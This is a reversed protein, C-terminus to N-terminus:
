HIPAPPSIVPASSRRATRRRVLNFDGTITITGSLDANLGTSVGGVFNNAIITNSMLLSVGGFGVSIGGGAGSSSNDVITSSVISATTGYFYLAGGGGGTATNKTMTSNSLILEGGDYFYIGAGEAAVNGTLLSNYIEIKGGVDGIVTSIAGGLGLGSATNSSIETDTVKVSSSGDALAIAGGSATATSGTITAESVNLTSGTGVLIAGGAGSVSGSKLVVFSLDLTQSDAVNFIRGTKNADITVRNKDTSIGNIVVSESVSLQGGLTITAPNFTASKFTITDTFGVNSNAFNLAKRLTLFTDAYNGDDTDGINSVTLSVEGLAANFTTLPVTSIPVTNATPTDADKVTPGVYWVQYIDTDGTDWTDATIGDPADFTYTITVPTAFGTPAPPNMSKANFTLGGFVSKVVIDNIDITGLDINVDDTFTVTVDFTTGGTVTVNDAKAKVTPIPNSQINYAGIDVAGLFDRNFPVGRQDHNLSLVTNSGGGLVAPHSTGLVARTNTFGGNNQLPGLLPDSGILNFGGGAVTIGSGLDPSSSSTNGGIISSFVTLTITSTGPSIGGGGAAGAKNGTLTSNNITWIGSSGFAYIGGGWTTATNGTFTSNNITMTASNVFYLGGGENASNGSVLSSDLKVLSTGSAQIGGGLSSGSTATNNSFASYEAYLRGSGIIVGGGSTVATNGTVSSKNITVTTGSGWSLGGGSSSASNSTFSSSTITVSGTGITAAGGSGSGASNSSFTGALSATVGGGNMALAGGAGATAKNTSFTGSLSVSANAGSVLMAGGAGATATNGTFSMSTMSITPSAGSFIVAGGGGTTTTNATFTVTNMTVSANAATFAMVGGGATGSYKTFSM